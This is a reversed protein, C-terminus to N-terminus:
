SDNTTQLCFLNCENHWPNSLIPSSPIPNASVHDNQPKYQPYEPTSAPGFFKLTCNDIVLDDDNNSKSDNIDDFVISETANTADDSTSKAALVSTFKSSIANKFDRKPKDDLSRDGM